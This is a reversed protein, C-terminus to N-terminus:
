EAAEARFARDLESRRAIIRRGIRRVPIQGFRALRFVRQLTQPDSRGFLFEAIAEGGDLLDDSLSEVNSITM